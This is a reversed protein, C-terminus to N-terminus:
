VDDRSKIYIVLGLLLVNISIVQDGSVFVMEHSMRLYDLGFKIISAMMVSIGLTRMNWSDKRIKLVIYGFVILFFIAEVVQVPFLYIGNPAVSSYNYVIRFLGDYEIGYCCGVLFCGIKGIAYMLPFSPTVILLLNEIPKHVHFCLFVGMITAGLLAGYSMFGLQWFSSGNSGNVILFLLKGGIIMGVNEYLLLGLIERKNYDYKKYISLIVIVNCVFAIGMALVYFQINTKFM